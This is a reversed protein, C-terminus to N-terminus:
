FTESLLLLAIAVVAFLSRNLKVLAATFTAGM